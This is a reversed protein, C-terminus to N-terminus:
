FLSFFTFIEVGEVEEVLVVQGPFLHIGCTVSALRQWPSLYAFLVHSLPVQSVLQSFFVKFQLFFLSFLKRSYLLPAPTVPNSHTSLKEARGGDRKGKLTHYEAM